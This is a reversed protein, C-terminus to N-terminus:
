AKIPTIKEIFLGFGIGVVAALALGLKLPLANALVATLGASAAAALM